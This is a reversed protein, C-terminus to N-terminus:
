IMGGAGEYASAKHLKGTSPDVDGGESEPIRQNNSSGTSGITVDAGPFKNRVSEDVGSELALLAINAHQRSGNSSNFTYHVPHGFAPRM